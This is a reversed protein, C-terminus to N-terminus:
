GHEFGLTEPLNVPSDRLTVVLGGNPRTEGIHTVIVGSEAAEALIDDHRSKEATFLLQYDDGWTSLRLMENTETPNGAFPVAELAIRVGIGSASALSAADGLLGDSVDLAASAQRAILHAAKPPQIRPVRYADIHLDDVEGRKLAEFGLCAAGIRGTVWLDEGAQAGMRRIPKDALCTGTLTLSLFVGGPPRVTDGGILRAGFVELEEGLASAFAALDSEPRGEPWGLTLLAEAPVAGATYIDSVNVRVLKRAVTEIPDSPLFHVGEVLADVTIVTPGDAVTLVALDDRLGAAGSTNALPAFYRSIWDKEAM